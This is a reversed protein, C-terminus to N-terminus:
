YLELYFVFYRAPMNSEVVATVVLCAAEFFRLVIFFFLCKEM